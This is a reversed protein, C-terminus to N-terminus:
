MEDEVEVEDDESEKIELKRGMREYWKLLLYYTTTFHNHKNAKIYKEADKKNFRFQELLDLINKYIPIDAVGTGQEFLNSPPASINFWKHLWIDEAKYWKEPDTNLICKMLEKCEESV